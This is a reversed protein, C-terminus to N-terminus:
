ESVVKLTEPNWLQAGHRIPQAKIPGDIWDCIVKANALMELGRATEAIWNPNNHASFRLLDRHGVVRHIKAGIIVRACRVCCYWPVYLTAGWTPIGHVAAGNIAAEEAHHILDYKDTSTWNVAQGRVGFNHGITGRYSGDVETLLYSGNQTRPDPSLRAAHYAITLGSRDDEIM